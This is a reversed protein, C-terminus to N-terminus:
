HPHSTHTYSGLVANAGTPLILMLFYKSLITLSKLYGALIQAALPSLSAGM